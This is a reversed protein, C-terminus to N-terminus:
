IDLYVKQTTDKKAERASVHIFKGETSLCYGKKKLLCKLHYPKIAAAGKGEKWAYVEGFYFGKGCKKCTKKVAIKKDVAKIPKLHKPCRFDPNGLGICGCTYVVEVFNLV